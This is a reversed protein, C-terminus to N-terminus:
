DPHSFPSAIRNLAETLKSLSPGDIATVKEWDGGCRAILADRLPQSAVRDLTPFLSQHEREHHHESLHKFRAELELLDLVRRRIGAQLPEIGMLSQKVSALLHLLKDHEKSFLERPWREQRGATEFLPLLLEEEQRVHERLRREFAALFAEAMDFRFALVAEQHILFLEDLEAHYSQFGAFSRLM